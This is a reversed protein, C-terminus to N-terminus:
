GTHKEALLRNVSSLNKRDDTRMDDDSSFDDERAPSMQGYYVQNSASLKTQAWDGLFVNYFQAVQERGLQASQIFKFDNNFDDFDKAGSEIARLIARYLKAAGQKRWEEALYVTAHLMAAAREELPTTFPTSDQQLLATAIASDTLGKSRLGAIYDTYKDGLKTKGWDNANSGLKPAGHNHFASINGTGFPTQFKVGSTTNTWNQYPGFNNYSYPNTPAALDGPMAIAWRANDKNWADLLGKRLTKDKSTDNVYTSVTSQSATIGLGNSDSYAQADAKQLQVARSRQITRPLAARPVNQPKAQLTAKPGHSLTKRQVVLPTPQPRYVPPAKSQASKRQLVKPM